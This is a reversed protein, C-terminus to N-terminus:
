MWCQALSQGVPRAGFGQKQRLSGGQRYSGGARETRPEARLRSAGGEAGKGRGGRSVRGQVWGRPPGTRPEAGAGPGM